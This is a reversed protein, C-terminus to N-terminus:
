SSFRKWNTYLTRLLRINVHEITIVSETYNEVFHINDIIIATIM